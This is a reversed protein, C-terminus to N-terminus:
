LCMLSMTLLLLLSFLPLLLLLLYVLLPLLHLHMMLLPLPRLLPYLLQHSTQAMGGGQQVALSLALLL